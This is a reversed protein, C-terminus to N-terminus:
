FTPKEDYWTGNYYWWEGPQCSLNSTQSDGNNWNFILNLEAGLVNNLEVDYWGDNDNDGMVSGPWGGLLPHNQNDFDVWSYINPARNLDGNKYHITFDNVGTEQRISGVNNVATIYLSLGQGSDYDAVDITKSSGIDVLQGNIESRQALVNNGTVALDLSDVNIYNGSTPTISIDVLKEPNLQHWQSNSYWWEGKEKTFEDSKFKIKDATGQTFMFNVENVGSFEKSYWDDGESTMTEGPWSSGNVDDGWYHINPTGNSYKYHIKTGAFGGAVANVVSSLDSNLGAENVAQVWYYYKTGEIANYDTYQSSTIPIEFLPEKFGTDTGRYIIYKAGSDDWSLEVGQDSSTASFSNPVVPTGKIPIDIDLGDEPVVKLVFEVTQETGTASGTFQYEGSATTDVEKNWSLAVKKSSGDSLIATAENPLTFDSGKKVEAKNGTDLELEVIEAEGSNSSNGGGSCATFSFIVLIVLAILLLKKM